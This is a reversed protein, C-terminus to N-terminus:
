KAASKVRDHSVSYIAYGGGVAMVGLAIIGPKTRFFGPSGTSTTSQQKKRIAPPNAAPIRAVERAIAQRLSLEAPQAIKANPGPAPEGALAPLPVLGMALALMASRGTPRRLFGLMPRV